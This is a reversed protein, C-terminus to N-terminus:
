QSDQSMIINCQRCKSNSICEQCVKKHCKSCIAMCKDNNCNARFCISCPDVLLCISCISLNCISCHHNNCQICRWKNCINCNGDYGDKHQSNESRICCCGACYRYLQNCGCKCDLLHQLKTCYICYYGTGHFFRGYGFDQSEKDSDMSNQYDPLNDSHLIVVESCCFTCKKTNGTAYESILKNIDKSMLQNNKITNLTKFIEVCQQIDYKNTFVTEIHETEDEADKQLSIKRKKFTPNLELQDISDDLSSLSRKRPNLHAM